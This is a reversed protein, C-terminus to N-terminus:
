ILDFAPRLYQKQIVVNLIPFELAIPQPTSTVEIEDLYVSYAFYSFSNEVKWKFWNIRIKHTFANMTHARALFYGIWRDFGNIDYLLHIKWKKAEFLKLGQQKKNWKSM